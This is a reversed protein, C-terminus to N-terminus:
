TFIKFNEDLGWEFVVVSASFLASYNIYGLFTEIEEVLMILRKCGFKMWKKRFHVLFFFLLNKIAKFKKRKEQQQFKWKRFWLKPSCFLRFLSSSTWLCTNVAAILIERRKSNVEIITVAFCNNWKM